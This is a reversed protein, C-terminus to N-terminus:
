KNPKAKPKKAAPKKEPKPKQWPMDEAFMDGVVSPVEILLTRAMTSRLATPNRMTFALEEEKFEGEDNELRVKIILNM